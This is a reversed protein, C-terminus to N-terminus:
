LDDWSDLRIGRASLRNVVVRVRRRLDLDGVSEITRLAKNLEKARLGFEWPEADSEAIRELVRLVAAPHSAAHRALEELIRSHRPFRGVLGIVRELRSLIEVPDYLPDALRRVLGRLEKECAAAAGTERHHELRRDVFDLARQTWQESGDKPIDEVKTRGFASIVAAFVAPPVASEFRELLHDPEGYDLRGSCYRCVLDVALRDDTRLADDGQHGPAALRVVAHVYENRLLNFGETGLNWHLILGEWAADFYEGDTTPTPFVRPKLAITRERDVDLLRLYLTGLMAHIGLRWRGHDEAYDEAEHLVAAALDSMVPQIRLARQLLATAAQWAVGAVSNIAIHYAGWPAHHEAEREHSPDSDRLLPKITGWVEGLGRLRRLPSLLRAVVPYRPVVRAHRRGHVM